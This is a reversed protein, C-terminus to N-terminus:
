VRYIPALMPHLVRWVRMSNRLESMENNDVVRLLNFFSPSVRWLKGFYYGFSLEIYRQGNVYLQGPESGVVPCVQNVISVDEYGPGSPVLSSCPGNLTHFENAM